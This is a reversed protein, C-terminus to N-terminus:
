MISKVYERAKSKVAEQQDPTGHTQEFQLYKKFIAKMNRASAKGCIMREFLQRAQAEYGSKVEKDVYIHWLDTRKPYSGVLEEFVARGRDASGVDFEALAYRHCNCIYHFSLQILFRM